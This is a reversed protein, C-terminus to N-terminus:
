QFINVNPWTKFFGIKPPFHAYGGCQRWLTQPRLVWDFLPGVPDVSIEFILKFIKRALFNLILGLFPFKSLGLLNIGFRPDNKKRFRTFKNEDSKLAQSSRRVMEMTRSVSDLIEVDKEKFYTNSDNNLM